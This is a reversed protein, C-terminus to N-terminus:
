HCTASGRDTFTRGAEPAFEWDYSNAHMTVLLAGYTDSNRVESNAIPAGPFAYHNKGGTGVVIQRVGRANDMAGSPNQPAFREYDHDHGSLVLEAGGNYLDQFITAMSPNSGHEGSSWRPHHWYALVCARPNAAMDNRLWQEQPSGSGCGGAQSCNSNVAYLRWTGVDYAYYGKAPDGAQAGFYGFYGSAGSTLYEHNGVAPRTISKLRGWSPAYSGQFQSLSGEEYQNDGLTIVAAPARALILDSTRAQACNAATGAGGNFNGDSPNCAIDGAAALV